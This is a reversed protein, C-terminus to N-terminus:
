SCKPSDKLRWTTVLTTVPCQITASRASVPRRTRALIHDLSDRAPRILVPM